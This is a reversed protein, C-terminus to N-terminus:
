NSETEVIVWDEKAATKAAEAQAAADAEEFMTAQEVRAGSAM